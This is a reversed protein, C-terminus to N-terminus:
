QSTSNEVLLQHSFILQYVTSYVNGTFLADADKLMNIEEINLAQGCFVFAFAWLCTYIIVTVFSCANVCVCLKSM